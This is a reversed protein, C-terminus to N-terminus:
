RPYGLVTGDEKTVTFMGSARKITVTGYGEVAMSCTFAAQTSDTVTIDESAITYETGDITLVLRGPEFKISLSGDSSTYTKGIFYEPFISDAIEQSIFTITIETNGSIYFTYSNGDMDETVTKNRVKLSKFVYGENPTITITIKEYAGYTTGGQAPRTIVYTGEDTNCTVTITYAEEGTVVKLTNENTYDTIFLETASIRLLQWTKKGVKFSYGTMGDGYPYVHCLTGDFTFSGDAGIDVSHAGNTYHTGAYETFKAEELPEVKTYVIPKADEDDVYTLTLTVEEADWALTYETGGASLRYTKTLENYSHVVAKDGSITLGDEGIHIPSNAPGADWDGWLDEPFDGSYNVGEKMCTQKTTTKDPLTIILVLLYKDAGANELTFTYRYVDSAEMRTFAYGTGSRTPTYPVDNFTFSNAEIVIVDPLTGSSVASTWTGIYADGFLDAAFSVEVTHDGSVTLTYVNGELSATVDQGDVKVQGVHYGHAPTLTLTVEDGIHYPAAPSLEYSVGSGCQVLIDKAMKDEPLYYRILINTNGEATFSYANGELAGKRDTGNVTFTEVEYNENPKLTLTVSTGASYVGGAPSLEYSGGSGCTVTVNVLAAFTVSIEADETVHFTYSNNEIDVATGNVTVTDVEYGANPALTLTVEDNKRYFLKEPSLSYNGNAGCDVSVTYLKDLTIVFATNENVEFTYKGNTLSVTEGNKTVSSLTYGTQVTVTLTVETGKEVPSEQSLRYSAGTGCEVTVTYSAPTDDKPDDDSPTTQTQPPDAPPTKECAAFGFLMCAACLAIFLSLLKKM